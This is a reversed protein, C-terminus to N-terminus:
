FKEQVGRTVWRGKASALHAGGVKQAAGIGRSAEAAWNTLASCQFRLAAPKIGALPGTTANKGPEDLLHIFNVNAIEMSSSPAITQVWKTTNNKYEIYLMIQKLFTSIVDLSHRPWIHQRLQSIILIIIRMSILANPLELFSGCQGWLPFKQRGSPLSSFNTESLVTTVTNPCGFPTVEM